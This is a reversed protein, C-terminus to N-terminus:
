PKAQALLADLEARVFPRGNAIVARIRTTNAIDVLPDADLLVLDAAKGKAITGLSDTLGLFAAPNITAAALAERPTFGSHVLAQLEDHLSFGPALCPNPLDTGALIGIRERRLEAVESRFDAFFGQRLTDPVEEISSVTGTCADQGVQDLYQFAPRTFAGRDKIELVITPTMWTGNARFVARLAACRVSDRAAHFARREAYWATYGERTWRSLAANIRSGAEDVCGDSLWMGNHEISAQGANAAEAASVSTPLHGAFPLGRRRTEAAIAFYADRPLSTYV